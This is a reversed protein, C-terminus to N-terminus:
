QFFLGTILRGVRGSAHDAGQRARQPAVGSLPRFPLEVNQTNLVNGNVDLIDLAENKNFYQWHLFYVALQHTNTDTFNLDVTFSTTSYWM